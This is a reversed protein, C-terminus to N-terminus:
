VAIVGKNIAHSFPCQLITFSNSSFPALTLKGVATNMTKIKQTKLAYKGKQKSVDAPSTSNYHM